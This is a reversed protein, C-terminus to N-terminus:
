ATTDAVSSYDAAPSDAAPALPQKAETGDSDGGVAIGYGIFMASILSAFASFTFIVYSYDLGLSYAFLISALTNFVGGAFIGLVAYSKWASRELRFSGIAYVILSLVTILTGVIGFGLIYNTSKMLVSNIQSGLQDQSPLTGSVTVDQITYYWKRLGSYLTTIQNYNGNGDVNWVPLAIWAQSAMCGILAACSAVTLFLGFTIKSNM